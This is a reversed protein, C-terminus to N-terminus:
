SSCFSFPLERSSVEEQVRCVGTSGGAESSLLGAGHQEEEGPTTFPQAWTPHLFWVVLVVQWHPVTLLQSLAGATLPAPQRSEATLLKM